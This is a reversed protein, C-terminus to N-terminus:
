TGGGTEKQEDTTVIAAYGDSFYATRRGLVTTKESAAMWGRRFLENPQLLQAADGATLTPWSYKIEHHVTKSIKSKLADVSLVSNEINGQCQGPIGNFTILLEYDGPSYRDYKSQVNDPDSGYNAIFDNLSHCAAFEETFTFECIDNPELRQKLVDCVQWLRNFNPSWLPTVGLQCSSEAHINLTELTTGDPDTQTIQSDECNWVFPQPDGKVPAYGAGGAIGTSDWESWIVAHPMLDTRQRCRLLYISIDIPTYIMRNRIRHTSATGTLPFYLDLNGTNNGDMYTIVDDSMANNYCFTRRMGKTVTGKADYALNINQFSGTTMNIIPAYVGKRNIGAQSYQCDLARPYGTTHIKRDTTTGFDKMAQRLMESRKGASIHIRRPYLKGSEGMRAIAPAAMQEMSLPNAKPDSRENPTSIRDLYDLSVRQWPLLKPRKEMVKAHIRRIAEATVGAAIPAFLERMKGVSHRHKMIAALQQKTIGYAKKIEAGSKLLDDVTANNEKSLMRRIKRVSEAATRVKFKSKYRTPMTTLRRNSLLNKLARSAYLM